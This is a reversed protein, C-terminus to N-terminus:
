LDVVLMLQWCLHTHVFCGSQLIIIPVIGSCLACCSLPFTFSLLGSSMNGQGQCLHHYWLHASDNVPVTVFIVAHMVDIEQFPSVLLLNYVSVNLTCLSRVYFFKQKEM